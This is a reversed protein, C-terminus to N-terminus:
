DGHGATGAAGGCVGSGVSAQYDAESAGCSQGSAAEARLWSELGAM